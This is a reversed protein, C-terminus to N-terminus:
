KNKSEIIRQSYALLQDAAYYAEEQKLGEDVRLQAALENRSLGILDAPEVSQAYTDYIEKPSLEYISMSNIKNEKGKV